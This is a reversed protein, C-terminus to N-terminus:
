SAPVQQGRALSCLGLASVALFGFSQPRQKPPSVTLLDLATWLPPASMPPPLRTRQRLAAPSTTHSPPSPDGGRITSEGEASSSSEQRVTHRDDESAEGLEPSEDGVRERRARRHPSHSGQSGEPSSASLRCPSGGTSDDRVPPSGTRDGRQRDMRDLSELLGDIQVKILTLERKITRLEEAKVSKARTANGSSSSPRSGSRPALSDRSRRLSSSCQRSRKPLSPGRPAPPLSAPVRQYDYVRDYFDDHYCDYDLDFDSGYVTRGPRKPGARSRSSKLEGAM